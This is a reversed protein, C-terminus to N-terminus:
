LQDLPRDLRLAPEVGAPTDRRHATLPLSHESSAPDARCADRSRGKDGTASAWCHRDLTGDGSPCHSVSFFILGDQL